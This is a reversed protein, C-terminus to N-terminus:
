GGPLGVYDGPTMRDVPSPAFTHLRGDPKPDPEAIVKAHATDIEHRAERRIREAEDRRLVGAEFLKAEFGDLPDADRTRVAGSSSSHGNLRTVFAELLYPRRRERCYKLARSLAHWSAIPDLGDVSEGAIGFAEARAVSLGERMQTASPTSIGYGNNTVLFLVPLEREPRSSWLLGSAFDGLATTAEGGIVVSAGNNKTRRQVIATGVAQGFQSGLVSSVPTVNWAPVAYHCPFNRGASYPDTSKMAMQRLHDAPAMGLALMAAPSRYHLHLYDYEPGKGKRVTLGLAVQFAEEGPGGIWFFAEGSKSMRVARDDLARSRAMLTYIKLCLSAPLSEVGSFVPPDIARSVASREPRGAPPNETMVTIEQSGVSAPAPPRTRKMSEM